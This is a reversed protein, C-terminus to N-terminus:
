NLTGEPLLSEFDLEAFHIIRLFKCHQLFTQPQWVFGAAGPTACRGGRGRHGLVRTGEGAEALHGSRNRCCQHDAPAFSMLSQLKGRAPIWCFLAEGELLAEMKSPPQLLPKATACFCCTHCLLALACCCMHQPQFGLSWTQAMPHVGSDQCQLSTGEQSWFMQHPAAVGTCRWLPYM